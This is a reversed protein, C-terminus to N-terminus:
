KSSALRVAARRSREPEPNIGLDAEVGKLFREIEMASVGKSLLTLIEPIYSDYEDALNPNDSVNLPDWDVLLVNRIENPKM